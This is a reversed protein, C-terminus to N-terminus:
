DPYSCENKKSFLFGFYKNWSIILCRTRFNFTRRYFSMGVVVVVLENNLWNMILTTTSNFSFSTLVVAFDIVYTFCPGFTIIIAGGHFTNFWWKAKAFFYFHFGTVLNTDDTKLILFWSRFRFFTTSATLLSGTNHISDYVLNILFPSWFIM